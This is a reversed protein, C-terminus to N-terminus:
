TRILIIDRKQKKDICKNAKKFIKIIKKYFMKIDTITICFFSGDAGQIEGFADAGM